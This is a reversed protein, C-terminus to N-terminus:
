KLSLLSQIDYHHHWIHLPQERCVCCCLLVPFRSLLRCSQQGHYFETHLVKCTIWNSSSSHRKLSSRMYLLWSFSVSSLEALDQPHSSARARNRRPTCTSDPAFLFMTHNKTFYPPFDQYTVIMVKDLNWGSYYSFCRHAWLAFFCSWFDGCLNLVIDHHWLRCYSTGNLLFVFKQGTISLRPDGHCTSVGHTHSHAHSPHKLWCNEPQSCLLRSANYLHWISIM